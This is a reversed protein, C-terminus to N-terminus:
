KLEEIKIMADQRNIYQPYAKDFRMDTYKGAETLNKSEFIMSDIEEKGVFLTSKFNKM